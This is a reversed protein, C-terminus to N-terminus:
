RRQTLNFAFKGSLSAKEQTLQIRYVGNGWVRSLRPDATEIYEINVKLGAPYAMEVANKVEGPTYLVLKNGNVKEPKQNTMFNWVSPKIAKTLRYDDTLSVSEKKKNLQITRNWYKVHAAKPYAGAIDLSFTSRSPNYKVSRAKFARGPAQLQGNVTPLNHYQSQMTWIEYRQSSFTKKTYTEVGVDILLPKGDYYVIFSGVDNHNHSEKNHGGKAAVFFGKGEKQDTRSVLVQLDSFWSEPVITEQPKTNGIAPLTQLTALQRALNQNTLRSGLQQREALWSAFGKMRDDGIKSGYRYILAPDPNAVASADAFNVYYDDKIHVKYIYQGINKILPEDWVAVKGGTAMELLELCDFLSAGARGWYSPGEDCGGDAPYPQTFRDLLTMIKYVASARRSHDKELILVCALWNSCIWPTWNNLDQGQYGMWHFDTHELNPVLIRREIEQQIRRTVVPSIEDLERHLLYYAWTLLVGTEAAFLDVYAKSIDPLGVQGYQYHHAPFGWWSEECIAWIGDVIQGMFRGKREICEAMIAQTLRKRREYWVKQFNTRNGNVSFEMTLTASLPPIPKGINKEAEAIVENKFGQPTQQWSAADMPYPVWEAPEILWGSIDPQSYKETLILGNDQAEALFTIWCLCNWFLIIKFGTKNIVSRHKEKM